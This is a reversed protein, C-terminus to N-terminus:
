RRQRLMALLAPLPRANLVDTAELWGRRAQDVGCSMFSLELDSHADSSIALKLGLTKALRCHADNLDLRHPQANAELFCGREVAGRM